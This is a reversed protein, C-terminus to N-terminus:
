TRDSLRQASQGSSNRQNGAALANTRHDRGREGPGTDINRQDVVSRPRFRIPGCVSDACESAAREANLGIDGALLGAAGRDGGGHALESAEVDQDVHGREVHRLRETLEGGRIPIALESDVQACREQERM